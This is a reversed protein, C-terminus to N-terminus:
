LCEILDKKTITYKKGNPYYLSPLLENIKDIDIGAKIAKEIKENVRDPEEPFRDEWQDTREVISDIVFREKFVFMKELNSDEVEISWDDPLNQVMEDDLDMEDILDSLETYFRDEIFFNEM